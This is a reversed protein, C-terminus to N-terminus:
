PQPHGVPILYLPQEVNPLSLAAALRDDDFAGIPVAGLGLAVAQLLINQAAHGAEMHVYRATRAGYKVETREYVAAIIFVAPALGIAEQGLGARQLAPRPDGEVHLVLRHGDPEYRYVGEPTGVYLELPYLAGASPATRHGAEDTVGQAAWALQGVEGPTLRADTFARHSRRRALTEELTTVGIRRPEPLAEEQHPLADPIAPERM